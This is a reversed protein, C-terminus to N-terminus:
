IKWTQKLSNTVEKLADLKFQLSVIESTEGKFAGRGFDGQFCDDSPSLLSTDRKQALSYKSHVTEFLFCALNKKGNPLDKENLQLAEMMDLVEPVLHKKFPDDLFRGLVHLLLEIHARQVARLKEDHTTNGDVQEFATFGWNLDKQNIKSPNENKHITCLHFYIREAIGQECLETMPFSVETKNLDSIWELSEYFGENSRKSLACIAKQLQVLEKVQEELTKLKTEVTFNSNISDCSSDESDSSTSDSSPAELVKTIMEIQFGLSEIASLTKENPHSETVTHLKSSYSNLKEITLGQSNTLKLQIKVVRPDIDNLGMEYHQILREALYIKAMVKQLRQLIEIRAREDVRACLECLGTAISKWVTLTFINTTLQLPEIKWKYGKLAQPSLLWDIQGHIPTALDNRQAPSFQIM